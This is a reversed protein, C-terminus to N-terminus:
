GSDMARGDMQGNSLDAGPPANSDRLEAAADAAKGGVGGRSECGPCNHLSEHIYADCDFCFM